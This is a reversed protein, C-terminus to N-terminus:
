VWKGFGVYKGRVKSLKPAYINLLWEFTECNKGNIFQMYDFMVEFVLLFILKPQM